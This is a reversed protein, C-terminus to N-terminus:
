RHGRWPEALTLLTAKSRLAQPSVVFAGTEAALAAASVPAVPWPARDPTSAKTTTM